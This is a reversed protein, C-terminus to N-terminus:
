SPIILHVALLIGAVGKGPKGSQPTKSVEMSGIFLDKWDNFVRQPFSESLNLPDFVDDMTM